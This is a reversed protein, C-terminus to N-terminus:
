GKVSGSTLGAVFYKQTFLFATFLPIMVMCIAATLMPWNTGYSDRFNLLGITLPVGRDTLATAIQAWMLEGWVFKFNFVFCTAMASKMLPLMIQILTQIEGSGDIRASEMLEVPITEFFNKMIIITGPLSWGTYALIIGWYPIKFLGIKAFMIYLPIVQSETPLIQIVLLFILIFEAFPIRLRALAYAMLISLIQILVLSLAAIIVSSLFYDGIRGTLFAGTYNELVIHKPPGWINQYFEPQSKLSTFLSFPVPIIFLAMCIIMSLRLVVAKAAASGPFRSRFGANNRRARISMRM